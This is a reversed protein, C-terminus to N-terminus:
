LNEGCAPCNKRRRVEVTEFDVSYGDYILLRGALLDGIGVIIKIAELAQLSGIIGVIPGIIPIEKEEDKPEKILCRLCATKKPIITMVQGNLGRVGGHVLPKMHKVCIDNLILRSKWNDLCDVAVDVSPVVDDLLSRSIESKIATINVNPNFKELKDKAVFVKDKGLDDINYLVQRNLNSLIVKDRDIITINGIGVVALYFSVISGLGGVGVVLVKSAKIKEQAKIGILKIQRKYRELENADLL